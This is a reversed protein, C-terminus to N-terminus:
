RCHITTAHQHCSHNPHAVAITGISMLFAVSLIFTAVLFLVSFEVTRWCLTKITM